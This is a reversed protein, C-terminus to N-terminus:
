GIQQWRGDVMKIRDGIYEPLVISLFRVPEREWQDRTRRPWDMDHGFRGFYASYFERHREDPCQGNCKLIGSGPMFETYHTDM